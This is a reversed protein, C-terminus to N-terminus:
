PFRSSSRQLTKRRANEGALGRKGANIFMLRYNGYDIRGHLDPATKETGIPLDGGCCIGFAARRNETRVARVTKVNLFRALNKTSVQKDGHMLVVMPEGAHDEM